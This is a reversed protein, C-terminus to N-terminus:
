KSSLRIPDIPNQEKFCKIIYHLAEIQSNHTIYALDDIYDKHEKALWVTCRKAMSRKLGERPIKIM